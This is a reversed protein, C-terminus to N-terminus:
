VGTLIKEARRLREARTESQPVNDKLVKRPRAIVAKSRKRVPPSAVRPKRTIEPKVTKYVLKQEPKAEGTKETIEKEDTEPIVINEAIQEPENFQEINSLNQMKKFYENQIFSFQFVFHFVIIAFIAGSAIWYHKQGTKKLFSNKAESENFDNANPLNQINIDKM